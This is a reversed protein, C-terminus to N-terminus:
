TYSLLLKDASAVSRLLLAQRGWRCGQHVVDYPDTGRQSSEADICDRQITSYVLVGGM